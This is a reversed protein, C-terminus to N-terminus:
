PKQEKLIENRIPAVLHKACLSDHTLLVKAYAQSNCKSCKRNKLRNKRKNDRYYRKREEPQLNRIAPTETETM